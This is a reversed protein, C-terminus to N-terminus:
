VAGGGPQAQLAGSQERFHLPKADRARLAVAAEQTFNLVNLGNLGEVKSLILSPFPREHHAQRVMRETSFPESHKSLTM